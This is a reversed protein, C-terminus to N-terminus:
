ALCCNLAPLPVEEVGVADGLDFSAISFSKSHQKEM